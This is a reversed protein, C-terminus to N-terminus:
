RSGALAKLSARLAGAVDLDPEASLVSSLVPRVEVESYGLNVLGQLADSFVSGRVDASKGTTPADGIKLKYKLELFIHQASKKGIGPVLTLATINEEAIIARLEAPRYRSLIAVATRPGIKNVSILTLFVEREDWTEFGYLEIADERVITAVFFCTQAEQKSLRALIHTPAFVEYGVGTSTMVLTSSEGVELVEGMICAIM